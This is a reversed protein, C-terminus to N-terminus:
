LEHRAEHQLLHFESALFFSVSRRSLTIVGRKLGRLRPGTPVCCVRIRVISKVAWVEKM